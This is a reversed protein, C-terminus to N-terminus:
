DQPEASLRAMADRAETVWPQLEPDADEWLDVFKGYYEIAKERDGREEYLEGLRLYGHALHGGDYWIASSPVEVFYELMIRASDAQGTREYASALWPHACTYCENGEDFRWLETIAEELRGESLAIVGEAGGGWQEADRSHDAEPTAEYEALLARAREPDGAAAYALALNGYPRDLPRLTELPFRELAEELVRRAHIPDDLVMREVVARRAARLLYLGGLNRDATIAFSRGWQRRASAIQGRMAALSGFWEYAIAEWYVRGRQESVIDLGQAEADDYDKRMAAIIVRYIAVEPNGPFREEARDLTVLASDFQGLRGQASAINTYFLRNTPDVELARRYYEMSRPVDRLKGYLTGMNNLAIYDDPYVDLLTSYASIAQDRNMTVVLHYAGIVNYRERETLRDRYEYAKTAAEVARSRREDSNQLVIALKRHAMAFTSDQELADELLQMARAADGQNLAQMGQSYLRLAQMSGTTVRDLPDSRRISRLSEGLRERLKTSLRQVAPVIEDVGQASEQQATLVEGDATVLRATLAYGSGVAVVEGTVVGKIGERQAAELALSADLGASPEREMRALIRRVQAPDAITVLPSQSLGIRMLETVTAGHTSDSTRNEFDALILQDREAIAGTAILTGMPGIGLVRMGSYGVTVVALAGFGILGGLLTRRWTLWRGLGGGGPAGAVRRRETLSTGIVIPMGIVLLAIAAAFVWGPLGLQMMLLYVVALLLLAGLAFVAGARLPDSWVGGLAAGSMAGPPVTVAAPRLAEAFQAAPSFRDAPTKALVRMLAATVQPPVAPRLTAVSPPEAMLHQHVVSEVTAGTFPPEGALMEFLVCGLSYLDSRGDLDRAGAAQEPSMYSPTGVALGTETLQAGGAATIARAIGFDAVRAHGGGILINEPKIDRHVVDHSHAYSLADAVERAIELADDLPLQKERNLRDRLSEGEVFPMVYYLLGDAEGSDYLPLIHPHDLGAAIEIERLFREPGIASALEPSLVKIAVQRRHKLDEALFVTAMGGSGIERQVAYREALAATLRDITSSV